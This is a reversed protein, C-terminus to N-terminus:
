FFRQLRGRGAKEAPHWSNQMELRLLTTRTQSCQRLENEGKDFTRFETAHVM